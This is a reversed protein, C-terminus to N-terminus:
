LAPDEMRATFAKQGGAAGLAHIQCLVSSSDLGGSLSTGVPVDSRLRIRVSDRFLDGFREAAATLSLPNTDAISVDWYQRERVRLRGDAAEVVLLRAPMLKRIGRWVTEPVGAQEGFRFFRYAARPELEPEVVGAAILAKVESAFAFSRGNPDLVYYFPKEGFRDRACFLRRRERDWIALAFMGNVRELCDDGWQEYAALLVETDGATHFRHGLARLEERLELYNYIEGNFIVALRAPADVERAPFARGDDNRLMPQAGAPSLDLISLRRHGLAVTAPGESAKWLSADDPGRHCLADMARAVAHQAGGDGLELIGVIGCM